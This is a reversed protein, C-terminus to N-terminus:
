RGIRGQTWADGDLMNFNGYDLEFEMVLIGLENVQETLAADISDDGFFSMNFRQATQAVIYQKFIEPMDEYPTLTVLDVNVGTSFSDTQAATDYLLGGRKRYMTAGSPSLVKLYDDLFPITKSFLDPLLTTNETNFVWGITQARRNFQNLIRRINAVDANVNDDLTNVASEGIASLADNVADLEGSVEVHIESSRAM